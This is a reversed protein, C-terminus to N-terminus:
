EVTICTRRASALSVGNCAAWVEVSMKLWLAIKDPTRVAWDLHGHIVSQEVSGKLVRFSAVLDRAPVEAVTGDSEMAPNRVLTEFCYRPDSEDDRWLASLM